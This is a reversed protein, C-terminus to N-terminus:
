VKFVRIVNEESYPSRCVPCQDMNSTCQYCCGMHGCTSIVANIEREFCVVCMDVDEEFDMQSVEQLKGILERLRTNEQMMQEITQNIVTKEKQLYALERSRNSNDRKLRAIELNKQVQDKLLKKFKSNEHKNIGYYMKDYIKDYNQESYNENEIIKDFIIHNKNSIDM